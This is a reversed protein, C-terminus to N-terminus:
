KKVFYDWSAKSVEAILKECTKLDERSDTVFVSIIYYRGKPLFVIGIDNVAAILGEKNAGSSGTKHAVVAGAPLLGKLRDKGTETGKMIDWIFKHHEKTLYKKENKYFAALVESAAKPTTWNQFQLNWNNQMVEENIKIAVDNYGNALFYREVVPPGGLLKILIDCGVNDSQSITYRLIESLPLTAGQPYKERLPSHLGPLLDKQEIKIQQDLSLKGEKVRSLVTLGIHFKFVSQLPFRHSGNISLTDKGDDGMISIGVFAKKNAVISDIQQRLFSKSQAKAQNELQFFLLALFILKSKVM